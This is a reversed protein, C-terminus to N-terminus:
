ADSSSDNVIPANFWAWNLGGSGWLGRHHPPLHCPVIHSSPPQCPPLRHWGSASTRAESEFTRGLDIMAAPPSGWKSAMRHSIVLFCQQGHPPQSKQLSTLAVTHILDSSIPLHLTLPSGCSGGGSSGKAQATAEHERSLTRFVPCYYLGLRFTRAIFLSSLFIPPSM